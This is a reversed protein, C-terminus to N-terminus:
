AAGEFTLLKDRYYEYQKRRLGIEAGLEASLVKVRFDLADLTATVRAQDEIPPVPIRVDLIYDKKLHTQDMGNNYALLQPNRDMVHHLFRPLLQGADRSRLLCVRQNAAYKGDADVYFTRALARGNPLDSMVLAVDGEYAPTLVDEPRVFRNAEGRSVFRATMLAVTGAPDVLKEHAKANFFHVVDRVLACPASGTSNLALDRYFAHEQSRLEVETALDAELRSVAREFGDLISGIERQIALPPVPIEVRAIDSVKIDKVKTGTVFKRKQREFEDTQFYYAVYLPDLSHKYICSHGGIAIPGDGLWAVATCVDEVNESTTTVVLDGTQAQKLRAALEPEIFSKTGTTATGYSTYIQGYHICPFGEEVFDKKQLGSGRVFTGVDGLRKVNVGEPCHEAILDDIRSM